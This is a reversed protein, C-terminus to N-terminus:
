PVRKAASEGRQCRIKQRALVAESRSSARGSHRGKAARARKAVVSLRIKELNIVM